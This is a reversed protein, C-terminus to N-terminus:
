PEAVLVLFPGDRPGVIIRREPGFPGRGITSLPYGADRLRGIASGRSGRLYAALWGEGHRALAAALPGETSPELIVVHRRPALTAVAAFAGLLDDSRTPEVAPALAAARALEITAWAPVIEIAESLRVVEDLAGGLSAAGLLGSLDPPGAPLRPNM